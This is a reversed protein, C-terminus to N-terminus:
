YHASDDMTQAGNCRSQIAGCAGHGHTTTSGAYESKDERPISQMQFDLVARFHVEEM